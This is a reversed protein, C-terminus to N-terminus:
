LTIEHILNKTYKNDIQNYKTEWIEFKLNQFQYKNVIKDSLKQLNKKTPHKRVLNMEEFYEGFIDPANDPLGRIWVERQSWHIETYMGFGGGKWRSTNHENVMYNQWIFIVIILIPVGYNYIYKM